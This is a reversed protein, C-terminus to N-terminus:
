DDRDKEGKDEEDDADGGFEWTALVLVGVEPADGGLGIPLSIGIEMNRTPPQWYIGPALRVPTADQEIEVGCELLYVLSKRKMFWATAVDGSVGATEDGERLDEIELGGSFNVQSRGLDRYLVLFPEYIFANEGVESTASPLGAGFGLGAAWGSCRDSFFNYYVELEVNGMGEAKANESGIFDVPFEAAIQLRDTIGYELVVPLRSNEPRERALLFGTTFQIEGREQPYVIEGLFLEQFVEEVQFPAGRALVCRCCLISMGILVIPTRLRATDGPTAYRSGAVVAAPSTGVGQQGM